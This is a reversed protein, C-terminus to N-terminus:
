GGSSPKGSIEPMFFSKPIAEEAEQNIIGAGKGVSKKTVFFKKIRKKSDKCCCVSKL